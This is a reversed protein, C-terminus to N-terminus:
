LIQNEHWELKGTVGWRKWFPIEITTLLGTAVLRAFLSVIISFLYIQLGITVSLDTKKIRFITKDVV